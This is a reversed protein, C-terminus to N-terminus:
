VIVRNLKGFRNINLKKKWFLKHFIRLESSRSLTNIM